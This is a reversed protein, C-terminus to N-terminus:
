AAQDDVTPTPLPRSFVGRRLIVALFYTAGDQMCKSTLELRAAPLDVADFAHVINEKSNLLFCRM